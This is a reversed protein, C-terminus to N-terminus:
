FTDGPTFGGGSVGARRAGGGVGCCGGPMVCRGRVATGSSNELREAM